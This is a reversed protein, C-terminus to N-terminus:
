DDCRCDFDDRDRRDRRDDRFRTDCPRVHLDPDVGHYNIKRGDMYGKEQPVFTCESWRYVDNIDRRETEIFCNLKDRTHILEGQLKCIEAHLPAVAAGVRELTYKENEQKVIIDDKYALEQRLKAERETVPRDGEHCGHAYPYAYGPFPYPMHPYGGYGPYGNGHGHGDRRERTERMWDIAGLSTGIIGTVLGAKAVTSSKSKYDM